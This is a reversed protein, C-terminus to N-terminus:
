MLNQPRLIYIKSRYPFCSMLEALIAKVADRSLGSIKKKATKRYPVGAADASLSVYRVERSSLYRCFARMTSLRNNCTEPSCDRDDSLWKLWNEIHKRDFCEQTFKEPTVECKKELYGIYLTLTTEYSKLTHESNTLQAPAYDTLFESIYRSLEMADKQRAKNKM